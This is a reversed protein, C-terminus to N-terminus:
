SSNRGRAQEAALLKLEALIAGIRYDKPTYVAAIGETKLQTADADPIVGGLVVPIDALEAARLEALVARVLEMHSGSLISLGILDPRFAAAAATIEQPTTRIGDYRTEFGANRAQLALQEAGNSHGDLGPKAVLLRLPAEDERVTSTGPAGTKVGTLARFEGYVQRLTDTWEGTTVGARAAAISPEMINRGERAATALAVIASSVAADNRQSKWAYLGAVASREDEPDAPQIPAAGGEQLPSPATEEYSNLGVVTDAGAEMRLRRELLSHSLARKMYGQEVAAVAGGMAEIKELETRAAAEIEASRGEIVPSGDFIDAFELLDTEEALIQQARLSLQQDWQRPLGLAETWAPLQVARARARKSLTVGLMEIM